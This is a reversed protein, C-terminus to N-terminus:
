EITYCKEYIVDNQQKGKVLYNGSEVNSFLYIGNENTEQIQVIKENDEKDLLYLFVAAKSIPTENCTIKGSITNKYDCPEKILDFYLCIRDFKEVKLVYPETSMYGQKKIVLKYNNPLVNYLLYQGNHNSMTIYITEDTDKAKLYIEAAEIPKRSGSELIKGYIIGNVFISSKKLTFSLKTVEHQNILITKIDSTNYGIASAIVKYRGPKLVNIFKYIGNEDTIASALPSCNEDLVMVTANRIPLNRSLVKGTLLTHYCFPAKELELNVTVEEQTKIEFPDSEGLIYIDHNLM